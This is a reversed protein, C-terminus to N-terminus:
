GDRFRDLHRRDKKTPRAFIQAAPDAHRRSREREAERATRGQETEEYLSQAIVASGRREALARVIVEFRGGATRIELLDGPRVGRAPKIREGALRVQGAEIAETAQTRTKFFRAAWLWKDARVGDNM